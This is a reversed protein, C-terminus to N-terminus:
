ADNGIGLNLLAYLSAIQSDVDKSELMAVLPPIAGLMSLTGRVELNEKALMRVTSAAERRKVSDDEEHLDKVLKKLKELAEEKKKAEEETEMEAMNLLDSLKESKVNPKSTQTQQRKDFSSAASSSFDETDDENFTSRRRHNYRSTAGGCSVAHFILRRLSALSLSNWLRFHHSFTPPKSSHHHHHGLVLNGVNNRHYNAMRRHVVNFPSFSLSLSLLSRQTWTKPKNETNIYQPTIYQTHREM